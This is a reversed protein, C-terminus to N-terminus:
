REFRREWLFGIISATIIIFVLTIIIVSISQPASILAFFNTILQTSLPIIRFILKGAGWIVPLQADQVEENLGGEQIQSSLEQTINQINITNNLKLLKENMDDEISVGYTESEGLLFFLLTGAVGVAMVAAVLINKADAM